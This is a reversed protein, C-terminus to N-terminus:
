VCVIKVKDSNHPTEPTKTRTEFCGFTNVLGCKCRRICNVEKLCKWCAPLTGNRQQYHYISPYISLYANRQNESFLRHVPKESIMCFFHFFSSQGREDKGAGSQVHIQVRESRTEVMAAKQQSPLPVTEEEEEM